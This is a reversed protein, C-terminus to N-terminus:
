RTTTLWKCAYASGQDCADAMGDTWGDNFAQVQVSEPTAPQATTHGVLWGGFATAASLTLAALAVRIRM